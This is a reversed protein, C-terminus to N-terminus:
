DNRVKGPYIRAGSFTDEYTRMKAAPQRLNDNDPNSGRLNLNGPRNQWNRQLNHPYPQVTIPQACLGALGAKQIKAPSSRNEKHTKAQLPAGVQLHSLVVALQLVLQNRTSPHQFARALIKM